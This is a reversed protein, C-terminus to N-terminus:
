TSSRGVTGYKKHEWINTEDIKSLVKNVKDEEKKLSQWYDYRKKSYFYTSDVMELGHEKAFQEAGRGSFMVHRSSSMVKRAALIPNKVGNVGAVAGSNLTKGEMLSADMEQAGVYNFVAGKGANFLPNNEMIVIATVVADTATGGTDM